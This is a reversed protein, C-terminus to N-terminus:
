RGKHPTKQSKYIEYDIAKLIQEANYAIGWQYTGLRKVEDERSKAASMEKNRLSEDIIVWLLAIGSWLLGLIMVTYNKSNSALIHGIVSVAIGGFLFVFKITDIIPEDPRKEIKAREQKITRLQSDENRLLAKQLSSSLQILESLLGKFETTIANEDILINADHTSKIKNFRQKITSLTSNMDDTDVSLVLPSIKEITDSVKDIREGWVDRQRIFVDIDMLMSLLMKEAKRFSLIDRDGMVKEFRDKVDAPLRKQDYKEIEQHFNDELAAYKEDRYSRLFDTLENNHKQFDGDSMAKLAYFQDVDLAQSLNKLGANVNGSAVQSKALIFYAEGLESNLEIARSCYTEAEPFKGQCYAAWAASIHSIAAVKRNRAESYRAALLFEQESEPLNVLSKDGK